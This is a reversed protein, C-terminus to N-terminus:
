AAVDFTPVPMYYSPLRQPHHTFKCYACMEGNSDVWPDVGDRGHHCRKPVLLLKSPEDARTVNYERPYGHAERDNGRITDTTIM